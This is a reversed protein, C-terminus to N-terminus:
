WLQEQDDEQTTADGNSLSDWEVPFYHNPSIRGGSHPFSLTSQFVTKKAYSQGDDNPDAYQDEEEEENDGWEFQHQFVDEEQLSFSSKKELPHLSSVEAHWAAHEAATLDVEGDSDTARDDSDEDSDVSDYTNSLLPNQDHINEGHSAVRGLQNSMYETFPNVNIDSKNKNAIPVLDQAPTFENSFKDSYEAYDDDDDDCGDFYSGTLGLSFTAPSNPNYYDVDHRQYEASTSYEEEDSSHRNEDEEVIKVDTNPVKEETGEQEDSKEEEDDEENSFIINRTQYAIDEDNTPIGNRRGPGDDENDITDGLVTDYEERRETLVGETYKVWRAEHLRDHIVPTSFSVNMEDLYASFKVVEEAILTLHGMYGLRIHTELQHKESEEDGNIIMDTISSTSLLDKLLFRNYGTKLPGNFIQQVIDFVVNHLFNNWSFLLFMELITAIIQTDLLAFKLLDGITPNKHLEVETMEDDPITENSVDSKDDDGTQESSISDEMHLSNIESSLEENEKETENPIEDSELLKQRLVDREHILSDGKSENLLGMNSCHLLEAVLECIKFREFGLPEIRGFSTELIPPTRNVLIDNFKSMHKAFLKLMHGLYIPDRDSPPHTKVTTHIVQVVDYDSNNKRILEIIIGVGNSLSTSGKLMIEILNEMVEPSSLQRTLENPGISSTIEDSCNGSVALLAKLFDAAASQISSDYNPGLRDVLKPILQEEKLKKIVGNQVDPKDTSIVKLFFDILPPDDIHALFKDVVGNQTLIFDVMGPMDMDLLRENIKMFYTSSEIPLPEGVDTITWLKELLERSEMIAASIPWVDASLIEAAIHARRSDAEEETEFVMTSSGEQDEDGIEKSADKAGTGNENAEKGGPLQDAAKSVGVPSDDGEDTNVIVTTEGSITLPEIDVLVYNVLKSLVAPYKLYILLKFNSCMLETYLEEDDLLEDLLELNPEYEKYGAETDPLKASNEEVGEDASEDDGTDIDCKRHLKADERAREHHFYRSSDGDSIRIFARNLINMLPSELASDQGFKWFSNSM